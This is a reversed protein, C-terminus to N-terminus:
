SIIKTCMSNKVSNEQNDTKKFNIIFSYRINFYLAARSDKSETKQQLTCISLCLSKIKSRKM